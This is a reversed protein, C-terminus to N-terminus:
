CLKPPKQFKTLMNPTKQFIQDVYKSTQSFPRVHDGGDYFDIHGGGGPSYFGLSDNIAAFVCLSTEKM